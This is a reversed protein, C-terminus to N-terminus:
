VKFLLILNMLILLFLGLGDRLTMVLLQFVNYFENEIEKLEWDCGDTSNNNYDVSHQFFVYSYLACAIFAIMLTLMSGVHRMVFKSGIRFHFNTIFLFCRFGGIINSFLVISECISKTYDLLYMYTLLAFQPKCEELKYQYYIPHTLVILLNITMFLTEVRVHYFFNEKFLPDNFIIFSSLCLISGVFSMCPNIILQFQYPDNNHYPM